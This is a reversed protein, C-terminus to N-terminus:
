KKVKKKLNKDISKLDDTITLVKNNNIKIKCEKSKKSFKTIQVRAAEDNKGLINQIYDLLQQKTM